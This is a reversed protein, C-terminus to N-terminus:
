AARRASMEVAEALVWSFRADGTTMVGYASRRHEREDVRGVVKAAVDGCYLFWQRVSRVELLLFTSAPRALWRRYLWM